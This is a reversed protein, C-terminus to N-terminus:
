EKIAITVKAAAQGCIKNTEPDIQTFLATCEHEGVPVEVDLSAYLIGKGVEILGSQYIIVGNSDNSITVFQPYNNAEDNIINLYGASYTNEFVIRSLMNICMKGEDLKANLKAVTDDVPPVIADPDWDPIDLSQTPTDVLAVLGVQRTQTIIFAFANMLLLLILIIICLITIVNTKRVLQKHKKDTPEPEDSADTVASPAFDIIYKDSDSMKHVKHGLGRLITITEAKLEGDHVCGSNSVCATEIEKLVLQAEENNAIAHTIYEVYANRATPLTNM